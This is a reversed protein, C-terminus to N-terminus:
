KEANSKEAVVIAKKYRRSVFGEDWKQKRTSSESETPHTRLGDNMVVHQASLGVYEPVIPPCEDVASVM